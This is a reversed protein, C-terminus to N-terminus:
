GVSGPLFNNSPKIRRYFLFMIIFLIPVSLQVAFPLFLVQAYTLVNSLFTVVWTIAYVSLLLQRENPRFLWLLVAPVLLLTWDYIMVYPTVWLTLAVAAAFLLPPEQRFRKWFLWFGLLVPLICIFYLVQSLTKQGHFLGLWFSQVSYANWIPFGDVTMLNSAIKVTYRIYELSAAPLFILSLGIQMLSGAFLGLLGKWNQRFELLWLLGVGVLFQPKYLLLSFVLGALFTRKRRWLFYTLCLIFLSLFANQGSSAAYFVPLWSLALGFTAGAKGIGLLKISAYLSALGLCIWVIPSLPYPILAFPVCLWAYFPPNLYPNFNLSPAPYLSQQITHALNLDYLSAGKGLLLIKGATYFAVFDTGILHGSLDTNGKGFILSAIWGLWLAGGILWPYRLRQPTLLRHIASIISDM